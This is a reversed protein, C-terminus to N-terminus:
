LLLEFNRGFTMQYAPCRSQIYNKVSRFIGPMDRIRQSAVFIRVNEEVSPVPTDYVWSMIHVWFFDMCKQVGTATSGKLLSKQRMLTTCKCYNEKSRQLM